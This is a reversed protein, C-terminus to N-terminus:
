RGTKQGTRNCNRVRMRFEKKEDTGTREGLAEQIESLLRHCEPGQFGQGDINADGNEDFDVIIKKRSMNM